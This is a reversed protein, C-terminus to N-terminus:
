APPSKPLVALLRDVDNMDNFVALSMRFRNQSVTMRIDAKQLLDGLKRRADKLAFGVLPTRSGLPTLPEYGRRRLEIQLADVLPQRAAQINAVGLQNIWTLTHDLQVVGTWSTTGMGFLGTANTQPTADAVSTGPPDYPLVHSQFSAVQHYGWWPRTIRDQIEKRVYLFGLGFDGMLWKYSSSAAFDVGAARLNTPTSGAAHVIDAYVYAGHAHALDCVRKLDHEFGNVTSVLSVAVLKTKDTVAAEMQAMDIGGEATMPLTVVDVGAKGLEGYTYFSGFFHLADTVIRGGAQPFGLAQLVLNEGMTTSQVFCLEDPEAGVLAGFQAFVNKEKDDMSYNPTTGDRTKYRLYEELATRAGLPMPHTSGADLYTFPMQAFASKAPLAGVKPIPGAAKALSPAAAAMAVLARRTVTM